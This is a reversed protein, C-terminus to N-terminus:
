WDYKAWPWFIGTLKKSIRLNTKNRKVERDLKKQKEDPPCHIKKLECKLCFNDLYNRHKLMRDSVADSIM